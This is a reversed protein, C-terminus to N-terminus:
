TVIISEPSILVRMASFSVTVDLAAASEPTKRVDQCHYARIVYDYQPYVNTVPRYIIDSPSRENPEHRKASGVRRFPIIYRHSGIKGVYM